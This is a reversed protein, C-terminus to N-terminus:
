PSQREFIHIYYDCREHPAGTVVAPAYTDFREDRRILKEVTYHPRVADREKSAIVIFRPAAALARDAREAAPTTGLEQLLPDNLGFIDLATGDAYYPLVGADGVAYADGPRLRDHLWRGGAERATSKCEQYTEAKVRALGLNAPMVVVMLGGLVVTALGAAAWRRWGQSAAVAAVGAAALLVLLPFIPLVLRSFLNVSDRFTLSAVGYVLVPAALLRARPPVRIFGIAALPLLPAVELLFIMTVRGFEGTGGKYIVSNPLMHGYWAWRLLQLVLQSVVPLGGLWALRRLTVARRARDLLPPVESFFVLAGALALGEPRIWPLLALLVGARAASGGDPRALILTAATLVLAMPLTELGGVAWFALAPSAAVIIAACTAALRGVVARAGLGCVIVLGFGSLVGTLRAFPAADGGLRYVAAEAFVLLPNSFGEVVEGGPNFVPGLGRAFNRAYRLSIFADDTFFARVSWVLAAFLLLAVLIAAASVAGPPPPWGAARSDTRM